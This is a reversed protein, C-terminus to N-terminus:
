QENNKNQEAVDARLADAIEGDTFFRLFRVETQARAVAAMDSPDAALLAQNADEQAEQLFAIMWRWEPAALWARMSSEGVGPERQGKTRM